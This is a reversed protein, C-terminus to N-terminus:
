GEGARLAAAAAIPGIVGAVLSLACLVLFPSLFPAPDTVAGLVAGVGFVLTPVSLPLVLIAILVGGRRLSVTLAAGIMGILTLAPTGALLTLTVAAIADAQMNLLLGMFPAAVVLPLSTATWHALGKVLAVLELPHGATVLLDLSGDEQDGQFLRDLGLLTALLAAIWLVAPGIRQLLPLDPGISFPMLTVVVLFFLVGMPAGGGVKVSLRLDRRFLALLARSM